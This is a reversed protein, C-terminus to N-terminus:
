CIGQFNFDSDSGEPAMALLAYRWYDAHFLDLAEDTFIGRQQSTSFKGGEYTLWSFSKITTALQWPRKAGIMMAPWFIAHFPVNDKAM